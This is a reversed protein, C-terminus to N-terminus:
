GEDAKLIVKKTADLIYRRKEQGKSLFPRTKRYKKELYLFSQKQFTLGLFSESEFSHRNSKPSFM